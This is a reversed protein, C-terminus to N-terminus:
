SVPHRYTALNVGKVQILERGTKAAIEDLARVVGERFMATYDHWCIVGGPAALDFAKESDALVNDYGHGADIFQFDVKGKLFGLDWQDTMDYYQRIKKSYATNNSVIAVAPRRPYDTTYVIADEPSNLAFLLTAHGYSTGYEVITKALTTKLLLVLYYADALTTASLELPRAKELGEFIPIMFLNQYCVQIQDANPVLDFISKVPLKGAGVTQSRTNWLWRCANALNRPRNFVDSLLDRTFLLPTDWLM